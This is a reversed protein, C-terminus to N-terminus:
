EHDQSEAKFFYAFYSNGVLRQIAVQAAPKAFGDFKNDIEYLKMFQSVTEQRILCGNIMVGFSTMQPKQRQNGAHLLAAQEYSLPTRPYAFTKLRPFEKVAAAPDRNLLHHAMMYEFAM